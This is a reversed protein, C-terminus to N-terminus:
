GEKTILEMLRATREEVNKDLIDLSEKERDYKDKTMWRARGGGKPRVLVEGRDHRKMKRRSALPSSESETVSTPSAPVITEEFMEPSVEPLIPKAEFGKGIESIPAVVKEKLEESPEIREVVFESKVGEVPKLYMWNEDTKVQEWTKDGMLTEVWPALSGKAKRNIAFLRKGEPSDVRGVHTQLQPLKSLKIRVEGSVPNEEYWDHRRDLRQWDSLDNQVISKIDEKIISAPGSLGQTGEDSFIQEMQESPSTGSVGSPNLKQVGVVVSLFRGYSRDFEAVLHNVEISKRRINYLEIRWENLRYNKLDKQAKDLSADIEKMNNNVAEQAVRAKEVLERYESFLKSKAWGKFREWLGAQVILEHNLAAEIYEDVISAEEYAGIEDFMDAALVAEKITWMQKWSM